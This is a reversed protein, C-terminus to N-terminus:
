NGGASMTQLGGAGTPAKERYTKIARASVGNTPDLTGERGDVLDQPDAVMAALNMNTACGYNDSLGGAFDAEARDGWSPCGPVRAISRSVIVRVSGAPSEGATAPAIDAILLGYRGVVAEVGDRLGPAAGGPADAFAVRDGYRLGLADFWAVLRTREAGGLGGSGDPAVDFVFDTRQVVPQHVPELGRPAERAMAPASGALCLGLALAAAGSRRFLRTTQMEDRDRM